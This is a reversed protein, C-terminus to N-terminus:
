FAAVIFIEVICGAILPQLKWYFPEMDGYAQIDNWTFAQWIHSKPLNVDFFSSTIIIIAILLQHTWEPKSEAAGDPTLGKAQEEMLKENQQKELLAQLM